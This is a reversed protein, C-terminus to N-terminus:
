LASGNYAKLGGTPGSASSSACLIGQVNVEAVRCSVPEYSTRVDKEVTKNM